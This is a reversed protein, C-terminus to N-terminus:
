VWFFGRHFFFLLVRFGRQSEKGMKFPLRQSKEEDEKRRAIHNTLTRLCKRMTYRHRVLFVSIALAFSFFWFGIVFRM